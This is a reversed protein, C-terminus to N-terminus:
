AMRKLYGNPAGTIGLKEHIDKDIIFSDNNKIFENVATMPSNGLGWPRDKFLHQPTSECHTDLVIIYSGCNVFDKYLNLEKIVHDMHQNSDLVVIVPGDHTILKEVQNVTEIEVSSGEILKISKFLPHNEIRQRNHSRIDIDIGIVLGNNGILNLLSSYFILSGGRAIGTEIVTKPKINWVIEQIAIIDQPYQIIPLGLWDFNYPYRHEFSLDFWQQNLNKMKSDSHMRKISNIREKEFELTDDKM